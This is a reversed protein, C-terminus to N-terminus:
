KIRMIASGLRDAGYDYVIAKVYKPEGKVPIRANFAGGEKLFALYTQEKLKLDIKKLTEGIVHQKADGAYIGVDISAEYLEGARDFRIKDSQLMGEVLIERAAPPGQVIPPKLTVKIDEISGEYTGAATLRNITIFQRRDLPVVQPTAYYGQRYLVTAGPRNVKVQIRRFAGSPANNSPSYGLLYQFRTAEDLRRFAYDGSQFATMQGGTMESMLRMGSVKFTNAFVASASPLVPAILTRGKGPPPPGEPYRPLPAAEAGGVYIIDLAVRADSAISALTKDNELRPLSLGTPTVFVLHKEGELYRLYDIGAYLNGLDQNLVVQSAVYQEFSLDIRAATDTARADPLSAFDGTRDTLAEARLLDEATRRVDASIQAADRAQGPAIARPRLGAVHGFVGDIEAQVDPTLATSGYVARITTSPRELMTEIKEHRDRYREAVAVVAAHNTTFDTGRNFAMVAVQDQPLLRTKLFSLLAPLEKSPGRMRQPARGLVILFVRRNQPKLDAATAAARRLEPSAEAAAADPTLSLTSFHTIAQAVGDETITFDAQRLDTIPKGNRDVARVDIPVITIRSRFSAQPPKQGPQEQPAATLGGAFAVAIVAVAVTRSVM